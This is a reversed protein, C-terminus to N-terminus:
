GLASAGVGQLSDSPATPFDRLRLTGAETGDSKWLEAGVGQAAGRTESILFFLTGDVGWLENLAADASAKFVRVPAADTGDIRWLESGEGSDVGVVFLLAD